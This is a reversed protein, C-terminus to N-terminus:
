TVRFELIPAGGSVFVGDRALVRSVFGHGPASIPRHGVRAIEDHADYVELEGCLARPPIRLVQGDAPATILVTRAREITRTTM